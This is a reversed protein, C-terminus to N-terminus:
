PKGWAPANERRRRLFQECRGQCQPLLLLCYVLQQHICIPGESRAPVFRPCSIRNIATINKQIVLRRAVERDNPDALRKLRELRDLTQAGVKCRAELIASKAEASAESSQTRTCRGRRFYLM